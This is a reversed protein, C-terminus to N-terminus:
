GAAQGERWARAAAQAEPTDIRELVGAALERREDAADDLVELLGPVAAEGIEELAEAAAWCVGTDEDLLMELLRPVADAARITGLAWAANTRV